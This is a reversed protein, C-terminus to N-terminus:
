EADVAHFGVQACFFSFSCYVMRGLIPMHFGHASEEIRFRRHVHHIGPVLCREQLGALEPVHGDNLLQEVVPRAKCLLVVFPAGRQHQAATVAM